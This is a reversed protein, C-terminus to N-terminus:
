AAALYQVSLCPIAHIAENAVVVLTINWMMGSFVLKLKKYTQNQM